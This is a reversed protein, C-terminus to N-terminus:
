KATARGVKLVQVKRKEVKLQLGTQDALNTLVAHVNTDEALTDIGRAPDKVMPSRVNYHWTLRGPMGEIKGAEVRNNVLREVSALLEAFTGTGGGGTTRDVLSKGFLEIETKKRGELPRAVYTGSLVYVEGEVERFTLAADLHCEKQLIGALQKAVEVPSAGDRVVFDGTVKVDLLKDPDEIRTRPVGCTMDLLRGLAVGEDPKVPLTHQALAPPAWDGKWRLVTFYDDSAINRAAGGFREGLYGARCKPYPPAVRKVDEGDKLGYKARFDQKWAPEAPPSKGEPEGAAAVTAAVALAALSIARVKDLLLM